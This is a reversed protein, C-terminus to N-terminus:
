EYPYWGAGDQIITNTWALLLCLGMNEIGWRKREEGGYCNYLQELRESYFEEFGQYAKSEFFVSLDIDDGAKGKLYSFINREQIENYIESISIDDYKGTDILHNIQSILTTLSTLKIKPLESIADIQKMLIKALHIYELANDLSIAPDPSHVAQNRLNYLERLLREVSPILAGCHELYHVSLRTRKQEEDSLLQKLKDIAILEVRRWVESIAASPSKEAIEIVKNDEDIPEAGLKM